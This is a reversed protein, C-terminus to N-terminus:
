LKGNDVYSPVFSLSPNGKVATNRKNRVKDRVKDLTNVDQGWGWGVCVCM